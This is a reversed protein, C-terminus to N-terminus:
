CVERRGADRVTQGDTMGELLLLLYNLVVHGELLERMFRLVNTRPDARRSRFGDIRKKTSRSLRRRDSMHAVM